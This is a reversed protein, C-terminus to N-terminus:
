SVQNQRHVASLAVAGSGGMLAAGSSYPFTGLSAEACVM